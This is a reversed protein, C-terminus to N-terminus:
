FMFQVVRVGVTMHFKAEARTAAATELFFGDLRVLRPPQHAL